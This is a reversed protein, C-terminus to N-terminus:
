SLQHNLVWYTALLQVICFILHNGFNDILKDYITHYFSQCNFAIILYVLFFDSNCMASLPHFLLFTIFKNYYRGLIINGKKMSLVQIPIEVRISEHYCHESCLQVTIGMQPMTCFICWYGLGTSQDFRFDAWFFYFFLLYFVLVCGIAGAYRYATAMGNTSIEM